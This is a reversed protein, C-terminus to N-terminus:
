RKKYERILLYKDSTKKIHNYYNNLLNEILNKKLDGKFNIAFDGLLQFLTTVSIFIPLEERTFNDIYNGERLLTTTTSDNILCIKIIVDCDKYKSEFKSNTSEVNKELVKKEAKNLQNIAKVIAQTVKSQKNSKVAKSEILVIANKSIITFDTIEEDRSNQLSTFLDQNETLFNSLFHQINNEQDYGHKGNKQFEDFNYYSIKNELQSDENNPYSIINLKQVNSNDVNDISLKFGKLNNEPMFYGDTIEEYLEFDKHIDIVWENFKNISNQKYLVTTFIPLNLHNYYVIKFREAKIFNIVSKDFNIYITDEESFNSYTVWLPDKPNDFVYLTVSRNSLKPNRIIFEFDCGSILDSLISPEFKFFIIPTKDEDIEIFFGNILGNIKNQIHNPAIYLDPM